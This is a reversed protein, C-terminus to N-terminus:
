RGDQRNCCLRIDEAPVTLNIPKTPSCPGLAWDGGNINISKRKEAAYMVAIEIQAQYLQIIAWDIQFFLLIAGAIKFEQSVKETRRISDFCFTFGPADIKFLYGDVIQM